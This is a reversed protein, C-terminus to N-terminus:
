LQLQFFLVSNVQCKAKLTTYQSSDPILLINSFVHFIQTKKFSKLIIASGLETDTFLIKNLIM